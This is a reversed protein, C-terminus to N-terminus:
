REGQSAEPKPHRFFDQHHAAPWAAWLLLIVTALVLLVDYVMWARRSREVTSCLLRDKLPDACSRYEPLIMLATALSYSALIVVPVGFVLPLYALGGLLGGGRASSLEDARVSSIGFAVALIGVLLLLGHSFLIASRLRPHLTWARHGLSIMWLGLLGFPAARIAAWFLAGLLNAGTDGSSMYPVVALSGYLIHTAVLLLLGGWAFHALVLGRILWRM